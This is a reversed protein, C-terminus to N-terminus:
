NLDEITAPWFIRYQNDPVTASFPTLVPGSFFFATLVESNNSPIRTTSLTVELNSSIVKFVAQSGFVDTFTKSTAMVSVPVLILLFSTIVLISPVKKM